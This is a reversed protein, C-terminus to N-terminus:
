TNAPNQLSLKQTASLKTLTAISAAIGRSKAIFANAVSLNARWLPLQLYGKPNARETTMAKEAKEKAKAVKAKANAKITKVKEVVKARAKGKAM